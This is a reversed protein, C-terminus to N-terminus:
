RSRIVNQILKKVNINEQVVIMVHPQHHQQGHQHCYKLYQAVLQAIQVAGVTGIGKKLLCGIDQFCAQRDKHDCNSSRDHKSLQVLILRRQHEIEQDVAKDGRKVAEKQPTSQTHHAFFAVIFFIDDQETDIVTGFSKDFFYTGRGIESILDGAIEINSWARM